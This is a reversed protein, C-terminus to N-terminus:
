NVDLPKVVQRVPKVSKNHEFISKKLEKVDLSTLNDTNFTEFTVESDEPMAVVLVHYEHNIGESIQQGINKHYNPTRVVLIPKVSKAM